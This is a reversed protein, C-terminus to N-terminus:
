PTVEGRVRWMGVTPVVRDCWRERLQAIYQRSVGRKVAIETHTADSTLDALLEALSSEGHATVYRRVQRRWTRDDM